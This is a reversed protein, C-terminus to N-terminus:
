YSCKMICKLAEDVQSVSGHISFMCVSSGFALVGAIQQIRMTATPLTGKEDSYASCICVVFVCVDILCLWVWWSGRTKSNYWENHTGENAVNSEESSNIGGEEIGGCSDRSWKQRLINLWRNHAHIQSNATKSETSRNPNTTLGGGNGEWRIWQPLENFRSPQLPYHATKRPTLV